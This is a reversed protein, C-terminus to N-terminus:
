EVRVRILVQCSSSASFVGKPNIRIHTVAPDVGNGNPAPVYVYTAGGDNSFSVDDTTSALSTFSYTLGSALATFAVPGSGGGGVDGVFLDTNAPVADFVFVANNDIVGPGPNTVVVSYDVFAGPIAKPNTTGNFPDSFTQASKVLTLPATVTLTDTAALTSAGANTTTLGGAAITNTHIGLTSSTVNVTVTCSGGAPITGGSLAVSGAGALATVTGGACTTAGGPSASNTIQAPYTDTFAAGTIATGSNPNTLTITLVSTAGSLIPDPAFNKSIVPRDLVVLTAAATNGTGSNTSSVAGSTNNYTGALASTVNVTITCTSTGASITGGSLSISGAGAVANVTGGCNNVVSPSAGNVLGAPYTDTFAIGALSAAPNPNTITFTLVSTNDVGITGLNFSKSIAPPAPRMAVAGIAWPGNLLGNQTWSMTVTAAGPETSGAGIMGTSLITGTNVNFRQTQGAGVSVSNGLLAGGVSVSDVVLDNTASAVNVTPTGSGGTTEVGTGLPVTQHVGFYSTAGAVFDVTNGGVPTVVVNATGSPPNVLVWGSIRMVDATSTTNGVNTMAVGGYTVTSIVTVTSTQDISIGVILIKNSGAGVTHAFTLTGGSSSASSASGFTIAASVAHAALLGCILAVASLVRAIMGRSM